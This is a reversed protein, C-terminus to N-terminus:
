RGAAPTSVAGRGAEALSSPQRGNLLSSPEPAVDFLRGVAALLRSEADSAVQGDALFTRIVQDLRAV